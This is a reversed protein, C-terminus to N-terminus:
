IAGTPLITDTHQCEEEREEEIIPKDFFDRETGLAECIRERNRTTPNFKGQTWGYVVSSAINIRTALENPTIDMLELYRNLKATNFYGGRPGTKRKKTLGKVEALEPYDRELIKLVFPLTDPHCGNIIEIAQLCGNSLSGDTRYTGTKRIAPLVDHTVWRKFAKAVPLKSSFILSYLGAENIVVAEQEGSPTAIRWGGKDESDVHTKLANVTDKYGLAMAVDKGVFWPEGDILTTRVQGLEPHEFLKLENM